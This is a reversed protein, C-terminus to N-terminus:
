NVDMLNASTAIESLITTDLQSPIPVYQLDYHLNNYGNQITTHYSQPQSECREEVWCNWEQTYIGQSLECM